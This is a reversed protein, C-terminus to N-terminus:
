LWGVWTRLVAGVAVGLLSVGLILPFMIRGINLVSFFLAWEWDFPTAGFIKGWDLVYWIYLMGYIVGIIFSSFFSAVFGYIIEKVDSLLLGFIIGAVVAIILDLYGPSPGEYITYAIQYHSLRESGAYALWYIKIVILTLLATWIAVILIDNRKRSIRMSLNKIKTWM